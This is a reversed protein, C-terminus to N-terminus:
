TQTKDLGQVLPNANNLTYVYGGTSGLTLSGYLGAIPSGVTGATSGFSVASVVAGDAGQTDKVGDSLNADTGGSGTIVNGDAILAGDETVSDVDAAAAPVDDVIAITLTGTSSDNDKDTVKVAFADSTTDGSTNTTLQYTYGIAGSAISTITLTGFTGAIAQGVTTVV